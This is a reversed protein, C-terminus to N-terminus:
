LVMQVDAGRQQGPLNGGSHVTFTNIDM